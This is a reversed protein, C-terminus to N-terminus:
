KEWLWQGKNFCYQPGGGWGSRQKVIQLIVPSCNKSEDRPCVLYILHQHELPHNRRSIGQPMGEASTTGVLSWHCLSHEELLFHFSSLWSALNPTISFSSVLLICYFFSRFWAFKWSQHSFGVALFGLVSRLPSEYDQGEDVGIPSSFDATM